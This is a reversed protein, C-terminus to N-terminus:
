FSPQTHLCALCEPHHQHYTTRLVHGKGSGPLWLPLSLLPPLGEPSLAILGLALGREIRLLYTPSRLEGEVKERGPGLKTDGWLAKMRQRSETTNHAKLADLM